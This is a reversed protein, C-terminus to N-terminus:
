SFFGAANAAQLAGLLGDSPTFTAADGNITGNSFDIYMPKNATFSLSDVALIGGQAVDFAMITLTGGSTMKFTSGAAVTIQQVNLSGSSGLTVTGKTTFGGAINVAGSVTAGDLTLDAGVANYSGAPMAGSVTAKGSALADIVHGETPSSMEEQAGTDVPAAIEMNATLDAAPIVICTDAQVAYNKGAVTYIAGATFATSKNEIALNQGVPVEVSSNPGRDNTVTLPTNSGGAYFNYTSAMADAFLIKVTEGTAAATVTIAKSGDVVIEYVNDNNPDTIVTDGYKVTVEYGAVPVATIEVLTGNVVTQTGDATKDVGAVKVQYSSINAPTVNPYTVTYNNFNGENQNVIYVLTAVPTRASDDDVALVYVNSNGPINDDDTNIASASSRTVVATNTADFYVQMFITESNYAYIRENSYNTVTNNTCGAINSDNEVRITGATKQTPVANNASYGLSFTKDGATPVAPVSLCTAATIYGDPTITDIKYLNNKTFAVGGSATSIGKMTVTTKEGNVWASYERYTEGGETKTTLPNSEALLFYSDSTSNDAGDTIFVVDANLQKNYVVYFDISTMTPVETYGTYVVGGEVDVFITSTTLSVVNVPAAETFPSVNSAEIYQIANVGNKITYKAVHSADSDIIGTGAVLAGSSNLEYSDGNDYQGAVAYTTWKNQASADPNTDTVRTLEYNEGQKVYAFVGSTGTDTTDLASGQAVLVGATNYLKNINITSEQGDAFTVVAKVGNLDDIADQMYLYDVARKTAEFAIMNGYTDLYLTNEANITPDDLVTDALDNAFTNGVYDYQKDDMVAYTGYRNDDLYISKVATVTGTVTKAKEMSAISFQAGDEYLTVLVKDGDVLDTSDVTVTSQRAAANTQNGDIGDLYNLTITTSGDGENARVVEALFTDVMTVTVTRDVNNVFVETLTGVATKQYDSTNNKIPAANNWFEGNYYVTWDYGAITSGVVNYLDKNSIGDTYTYDAEDAYTGVETNKYTWTSSPRGFNDRDAKKMLNGQYLKEGLEVTYRGTSGGVNNSTDLQDNIAEAYDEGSTILNYKVDNVITIDGVTITGSTEAEVIGSELGNLVLQAVDNRTMAEKVGSNVDNFLDIKNGQSVTALQWDSGFDSQYQFYGLAKMIMLAAQATTVTQDGGYETASIGATIGNTWCAAVYPEAWSPVDTFPSTDKYTAVNYAMLNAMIVAMENRTVTGNPNFNGASDVGTMIGAAQLVEIAEKHYTDDVDQYGAASGGMVVMGLVMTSSLLLSLARKLNRM